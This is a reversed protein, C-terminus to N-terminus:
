LASPVVQRMGPVEKDLTGLFGWKDALSEGWGDCNFRGKRGNPECTIGSNDHFNWERYTIENQPDRKEMFEYLSTNADGELFREPRNIRLLFHTNVGAVRDLEIEADPRDHSPTAPVCYIKQRIHAEQPKPDLGLAADDKMSNLDQIPMCPGNAAIMQNLRENFELSDRGAERTRAVVQARYSEAVVVTAFAGAGVAIIIATLANSKANSPETPKEQSSLIKPVSSPSSNMSNTHKYTTSNLM